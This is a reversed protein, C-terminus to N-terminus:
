LLSCCAFSTRSRAFHTSGNGISDVNKLKPKSKSKTLVVPTWDQYIEPM